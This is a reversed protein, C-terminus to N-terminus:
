AGPCNIFSPWPYLGVGGEDVWGGGGGGDEEVVQDVSVCKMGIRLRTKNRHQQLAHHLCLLASYHDSDIM